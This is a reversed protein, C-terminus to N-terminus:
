VQEALRESLEDVSVVRLQNARAEDREATVKAVVAQVELAEARLREHVVREVLGATRGIQVACGPREDIGICIAVRGPVTVAGDATQITADVIQVDLYPANHSGCLFCGQPVHETTTATLDM